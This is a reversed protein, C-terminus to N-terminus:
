LLQLNDVSPIELPKWSSLQDNKQLSMSAAANNNKLLLYAIFAGIAIGIITNTNFISPKEDVMTIVDYNDKNDNSDEFIYGCTARTVCEKKTRPYKRCQLPRYKYISCYSMEQSDFKQFPCKLPLRCCKGCDICKGKRNSDVPLISTVSRYMKSSLNNKM